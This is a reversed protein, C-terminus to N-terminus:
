RAAPAAPPAPPPPNVPIASGRHCTACQVRAVAKPAKEDSALNNAPNGRAVYVHCYSCEVGLGATFTNMMAVLQPGPIDMPLVKLNRQAPTRGARQGGAAPAQAAALSATLVIIGVVVVVQIFRRM